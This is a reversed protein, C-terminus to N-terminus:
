TGSLLHLWNPSSIGRAAQSLFAYIRESFFFVDDYIKFKIQVKRLYLIILNSVSLSLIISSFSFGSSFKWLSAHLLFLVFFESLLMLYKSSITILGLTSITLISIPIRSPSVSLSFPAFAFTASPARFSSFSRLFVQLSWSSYNFLFSYRPIDYIAIFYFVIVFIKVIQDPSSFYMLKFAAGILGVVRKEISVISVPTFSTMDEFPFPFFALRDKQLLLNIRYSYVHYLTM